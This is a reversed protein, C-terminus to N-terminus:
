IHNCNDWTSNEECFGMLYSLAGIVVKLQMGFIFSFKPLEDTELFIKYRILIIVSSIFATAFIILLIVVTVFYILYLRNHPLFAIIFAVLSAEFMIYIPYPQPYIMASVCYSIIVVNVVMIVKFTHMDM